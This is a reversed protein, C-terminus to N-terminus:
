FLFLVNSLVLREHGDCGLKALLDRPDFTGGDAGLGARM